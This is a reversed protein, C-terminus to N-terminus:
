EVKPATKADPTVDLVRAHSTIHVPPKCDKMCAQKKWFARETTDRDDDYFGAVNPLKVSALNRENLEFDEDKVIDNLNLVYAVVAYTEDVTLSQANGFPMARRVFDFVTSTYPWYSGVTKLPREDKLTGQGGALEPWRGAGEGFEGHCYACRQQFIAEGEKVTGHGTPLGKGDPRVDIDWAAIEEPLAPRGVKLEGAKASAAAAPVAVVLALALALEPYKSM